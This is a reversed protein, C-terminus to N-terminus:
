GGTSHNIVLGISLMDSYVCLRLAEDCTQHTEKHPKPLRMHGVPIVRWYRIFREFGLDAGDGTLAVLCGECLRELAAKNRKLHHLQHTEHYDGQTKPNIFDRKLKSQENHQKRNHEHNQGKL